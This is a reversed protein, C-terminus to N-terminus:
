PLTVQLAQLQPDQSTRILQQAQYLNALHLGQMVGHLGDQGSGAALLWLDKLPMKEVHFTKKEGVGLETKATCKGGVALFSHVKHNMNAPNAYVSGLTYMEGGVYGIEERLERWVGVEASEDEPDLWGAIVELVYTGAGHRYQRVLVADMNEDVVLCTVWDPYELVYYPEIIAGTPTRCSDARLKLWRDNVIYKSSVTDWVLRPDRPDRPM